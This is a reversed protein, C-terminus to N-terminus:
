KNKFTKRWCVLWEKLTPHYYPNAVGNNVEKEDKEWKDIYEKESVRYKFDCIDWQPYAKRYNNGNGIDKGRRFMSRVRRTALKKGVRCSKRDKTSPYKKYSKGM